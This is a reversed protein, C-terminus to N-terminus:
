PGITARPPDSKGILSAGRYQSLTTEVDRENYCLIALGPGSNQGPNKLKLHFSKCGKLNNGDREIASVEKESM